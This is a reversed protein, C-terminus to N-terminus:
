DCRHDWTWFTSEIGQARNGAAYSKYIALSPNALRMLALSETNEAAEVSAMQFPVRDM